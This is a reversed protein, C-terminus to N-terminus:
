VCRGIFITGTSIADNPFHAMIPENVVAVQSGPVWVFFSGDAANHFFASTAAPCGSATLLQAFTGGSYVFSGFGGSAPPKNGSIITGPTQAEATPASQGPMVLLLAAVAAAVLASGLFMRKIM